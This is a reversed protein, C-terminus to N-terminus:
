GGPLPRKQQKVPQSRPLSDRWAQPLLVEQVFIGGMALRTKDEGKATKYIQWWRVIAPFTDPQPSADEQLRIKPTRPSKKKKKYTTPRATCWIYLPKPVCSVAVKHHVRQLFVCTKSSRAMGGFRSIAGCTTQLCSVRVYALVFTTDYSQHMFLLFGDVSFGYVGHTLM